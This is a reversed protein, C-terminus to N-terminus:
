DTASAPETTSPVSACTWVPMVKFRSLDVDDAIGVVRGSGTYQWGLVGGDPDSWAGWPKFKLPESQTYSAVWLPCQALAPRTAMGMPGAVWGATYILPVVDLDASVIDLFELLCELTPCKGTKGVSREVDVMPPLTHGCDKVTDIFHAAQDKAASFPSLFHYVGLPLGAAIVREANAAFDPVSSGPGSAGETAKLVVGDIKPSTSAAVRTWDPLGQAPGADLLTFPADM